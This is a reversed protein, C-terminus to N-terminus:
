VVFTIIMRPRAPVQCKNQSLYVSLKLYGYNQCTFAVPWIKFKKKISLRFILKIMILSM